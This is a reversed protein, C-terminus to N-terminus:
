LHLSSPNEGRMVAFRGVLVARLGRIAFLEGRAHFACINFPERNQKKPVVIRWSDFVYAASTYPAHQMQAKGGRALACAAASSRCVHAAISALSLLAPVRMPGPTESEVLRSVVARGRASLAEKPIPPALDPGASMM